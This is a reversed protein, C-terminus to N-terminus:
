RELWEVYTQPVENRVIMVRLVRDERLLEAAGVRAADVSSYRAWAQPM